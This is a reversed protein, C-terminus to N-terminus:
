RTPGLFEPLITATGAETGLEEPRPGAPDIAGDCIELAGDDGLRM